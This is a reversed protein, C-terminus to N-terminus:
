LVIGLGSNGAICDLVLLSYQLVIQKRGVCNPCYGSGLNRCLNKKKKTKENYIYKKKM